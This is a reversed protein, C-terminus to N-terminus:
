KLPGRVTNLLPFRGSRHAGNEKDTSPDSWLGWIALAIGAVFPLGMSALLIWVLLDNM